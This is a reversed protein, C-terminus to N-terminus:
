NLLDDTIILRYEADYSSSEEFMWLSDVIPKQEYVSVKTGDDEARYLTIEEFAITDSPDVFGNLDTAVAIFQSSQSEIVIEGAEETILILDISSSNKIIYETGYVPDDSECQMSMLLSALLLLLLKKM